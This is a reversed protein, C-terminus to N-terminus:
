HTQLRSDCGKQQIGVRSDLSLRGAGESSEAAHRFKTGDQLEILLGGLRMLTRDPDLDVLLDVDSAPSNGRRASSGFM